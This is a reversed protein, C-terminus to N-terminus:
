DESRNRGASGLVDGLLVAAELLILLLGGLLLLHLFPDVADILYGYQVISLQTM